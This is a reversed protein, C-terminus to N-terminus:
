ERYIHERMIIRSQKGGWYFSNQTIWNWIKLVYDSMHYTILFHKSPHTSPHILAHICAAIKNLSHSDTNALSTQSPRKSFAAKPRLYPPNPVLNTFNHPILLVLTASNKGRRKPAKCTESQNCCHSVLPWFCESLAQQCTFILNTGRSEMIFLLWLIMQVHWSSIIPILSGELKPAAAWTGSM